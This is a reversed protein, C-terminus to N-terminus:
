VSREVPQGEQGDPEGEAGSLPRGLERELEHIYARWADFEATNKRLDGRQEEITGQQQALAARQEALVGEQEAIVNGQEVVVQEAVAVSSEREREWRRQGLADMQAALAPMQLESRGPGFAAIFHTAVADDGGMEVVLEHRVPSGEWDIVGSGSVAVQRLLTHEAPLLRRLEEFAGEGWVSQHHPNEIAWFADNPVSLVFTAAGKRALVGSWELLPTFNSLHEVVEFCSVVPAGGASGALHEGIEALVASDTLDGEIQTAEGRGLERAARAVVEADRDVLVVLPPLADGFAAAAALGNGCGLDAWASSRALLPAIMRYRLEHEVRIAPPTEITIREQWDAM